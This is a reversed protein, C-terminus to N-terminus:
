KKKQIENYIQKGEINGYKEIYYEISKAYKLKIIYEEYKRKGEEEGYMRIMNEITQSKYKNVEIYKKQGEVDGYKKIFSKLSSTNQIEKVKIKSEEEDYGLEIWYNINRQNKVNKRDVDKLASLSKNKFIEYKRKGEDEGYREIFGNLNQKITKKWNEYKKRGENEGYKLIM